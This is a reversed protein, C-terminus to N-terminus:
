LMDRRGQFAKRSCNVFKAATLMCLCGCGVLPYAVEVVGSFGLLAVAAISASVYWRPGLGRFCATLTSLVALYLCVAGLYFGLKGSQQMMRVFPLAENILLPRRLIVANGALVLCTFLLGAYRISRRRSTHSAERANVMIPLLLAANFGGYTAARIMGVPFFADTTAAAQEPPMRLGSVIVLTLVILLVRSTWALGTKTRHALLWALVGTAAMGIGYAGHVPLTLSAIEGAGSLMAGGTVIMLLCLLVRWLCRQWRGAWTHPLENDALCVLVSGAILIGPVSWMGYRSFFSAIERGSAIGAGLVTGLLEWTLMAM